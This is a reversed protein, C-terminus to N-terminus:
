ATVVVSRVYSAATPHQLPLASPVGAPARCSVQGELNFVHFHLHAVVRSWRRLASLLIQQITTMSCVFYIPYRIYTCVYKVHYIERWRAGRACLIRLEVVLHLGATATYVVDLEYIYSVFYIDCPPVYRHWM